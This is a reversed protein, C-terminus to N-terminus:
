LYEEDSRNLFPATAKKSTPGLPVIRRHGRHKNKHEIPEYIWVEGTTDIDCPRMIVGEGPRMGTARQLKILAAIQPSTVEVVAKIASDAVPKVPETERASCRGYRLGDVCKLALHVSSDILEESVAWKFIRRIRNVRKNIETRALDHVIMAERVLKLRKPGFAAAELDGFLRLHRAADCM